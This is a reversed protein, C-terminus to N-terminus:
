PPSIFLFNLFPLLRGILEANICLYFSPVSFAQLRALLLDSLTLTFTLLPIKFPLISHLLLLLRISLSTQADGKPAVSVCREFPPVGKKSRETARRSRSKSKSLNKYKQLINTNISISISCWEFPPVAKKSQTAKCM